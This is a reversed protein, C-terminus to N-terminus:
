HVPLRLPPRFRRSRSAERAAPSALHIVDWSVTGDSAVNLLSSGPQRRVQAAETLTQYREHSSIMLLKYGGHSVAVACPCRYSIRTGAQVGVAKFVSALTRVLVILWLPFLPDCLFSREVRHGRHNFAENGPGTLLAPDSDQLPDCM